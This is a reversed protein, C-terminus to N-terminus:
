FDIEISYFKGDKKTFNYSKIFHEEIFHNLIETITKRYEQRQWKSDSDLGCQSFLTDFLITKNLKRVRKNRNEAHSGKIKLIRAVLYGKITITQATCRVPAALLTPKFEAFQKKIEAVTLLPSDGLFKVVGETTVGNVTATIIQNPLLAGEVVIKANVNFGLDAANQRYKKFHKILATLDVSLDIHRLKRLSDAIAAKLKTADRLDRGGGLIHFIRSYTTVENGAVQESIAAWLIAGDFPTLVVDNGASDKPFIIKVPSEVGAGRDEIIAETDEKDEIEANFILCSLKDTPSIINETKQLQFKNNANRAM